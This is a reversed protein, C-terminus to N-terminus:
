RRATSSASHREVLDRDVGAEDSADVPTVEHRRRTRPDDTRTQDRDHVDRRRVERGARALGVALAVLLLGVVLMTAPGGITEGFLEFALRPVLVFLGIAGVVLHHFADRRLALLVLGAALVVGITLWTRPAAFLATQTGMLAVAGGLVGSTATPPLWGGLSLLLWALGIGFTVGGYVWADPTMPLLDLATMALALIAGLAVLQPLTRRRWLYLPVAVVSVAAAVIVATTATDLRLVDDTVLYALWGTGLTGGALLVSTLRALPPADLRRMAVGSAFFLLTMAGVLGIQGAVTIRDWVEGLMWGLAGVALGAGVYGIAEAPMLRQARDRTATAGDPSSEFGAQTTGGDGGTEFRVIADAQEADLLGARTWAELRTRLDQM